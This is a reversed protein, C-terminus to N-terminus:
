WPVRRIELSDGVTEYFGNEVAGAREVLSLIVNAGELPERAGKFGNFATRCHGPNAAYFRVGSQSKGQEITLANLAVKSVSYAVVATPPLGGGVSRAISARGSSMNVVLPTGPAGKLLPLFAATVNAVSAVNTDLIRAWAGRHQALTAEPPVVEAYGANNVLVDLTGFRAAASAAAADISADSTVDLVLEEIRATVGANRLQAVAPAINSATRAGIIYTHQPMRTALAQM